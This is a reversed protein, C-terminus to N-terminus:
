VRGIFKGVIVRTNGCRCLPHFDRSDSRRRAVSTADPPVIEFGEWQISSRGWDDSCSVRTGVQGCKESRAEHREYEWDM